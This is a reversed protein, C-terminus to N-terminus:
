IPLHFLTGDDENDADKKGTAESQQATLAELDTGSLLHLAKFAELLTVHIAELDNLMISRGAESNRRLNHQRYFHHSLRNREQLASSLVTELQDLADTHRKTNKILQGLTQRNIRGLLETARIGDVELNPTIMGEGVAGHFLLM